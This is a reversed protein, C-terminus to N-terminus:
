GMGMEKGDWGHLGLMIKVGGGEVDWGGCAWDKNSGRRHFAWRLGGGHAGDRKGAWEQLGM